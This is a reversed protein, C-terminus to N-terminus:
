AGCRVTRDAIAEALAALADDIRALGRLARARLRLVRVAGEADGAPLVTRAADLDRLADEFALADLAREAACVLWRM